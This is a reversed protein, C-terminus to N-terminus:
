KDFEKGCFPCHSATVRIATEKTKGSPMKWTAKFPINLAKKFDPMMFAMNECHLFEIQGGKPRMTGMDEDSKCKVMMRDEIEKICLCSM